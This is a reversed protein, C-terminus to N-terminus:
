RVMFHCKEWNLILNKKKCRQLVLELHHLCHDFSDKYISFNNMFIELFCEVMVSFLNLMYQQFTAPTNCLGFPMRQYAFTKFPLYIHDERPRRCCYPDSQIRLVRESFITGHEALCKLMQDIFPLPFHDKRTTTNLKQYDICVHVKTPLRIQLLEKHENEVVTFGAKKPVAHVLSVWQSDFIPYIIRNDLLKLIKM